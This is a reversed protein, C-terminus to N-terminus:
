AMSQSESYEYGIVVSMSKFVIKDLPQLKDTSHSPMAILEMGADKRHRMRVNTEDINWICKPDNGINLMAVKLSATYSNIIAASVPKLRHASTVEPKKSVLDPYRRKLGNLVNM